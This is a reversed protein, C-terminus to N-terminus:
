DMTNIDANIVRELLVPQNNWHFPKYKDNHKVVNDKFVLGDVSKAYLLPIDFTDFENGTITIGSHFYKKQSDLDPIEPYISIVANTFQFMNTLANIFKNGRIVVDRCAGTEFWGNCDGCLLIATGSTHDFLNNEAVVRRPTSFLAGRARNNRVVNDAFLVSPTWELNEIGFSASDPNLSQPLPSSFTIKFEKAGATETCDYPSIAAITNKDGVLEMTQSAIFQVSDGPEGWRFGYAQHHMYQGVVTVSDLKNKIKLYTGHVNIADDMMGEYLGGVSVIEGKCASFHTADAQTTFYRPDDDGRLCVSFKELTINESMQALLGMGEAYHVKVNEINIDRDDAIFIGPCPRGYTRMVVKTGAVLRPNNWPATIVGPASEVAGRTGVSFDSTRYVMHKTEPEFAIGACPEHSWGEGSVTFVSDIVEYKVWPEPRYSIIGNVTDNDVITVQVIHPQEFDISFNKLSCSDSEILAVPLMRGHFIFDAGGGDITMNNRGELAIGVYKPNVQDHNSIYYEKTLSDSPYFDYRGASFRFTLKEGPNVGSISDIVHNVRYTCDNGSDPMIGYDAVNVVIEDTSTGCASLLALGFPLLKLTKM